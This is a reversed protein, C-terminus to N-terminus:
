INQVFNKQSTRFGGLFMPMMIRGYQLLSYDGGSLCWDYILARECLAYVRVMENVTVDGRLEGRQQGQLVIQRLLKYYTRNHDLLHKDGRTVLQSSYLRALLDLPVRDEIMQFLARNLFLLKDLAPMAPDLTPQLDQYKQDFLDSLTALLADKGGFYHYFSGKSTHSAAIIEEVTTDEYGQEYFLQWAADVISARTNRTNKKAM